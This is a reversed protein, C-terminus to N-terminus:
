AETETNIKGFRQIFGPSAVISGIVTMDYGILVAAPACALTALGFLVINSLGHYQDKDRFIVGIRVQDEESIGWLGWTWEDMFESTSAIGLLYVHSSEHLSLEKRRDIEKQSTALNESQTQKEAMAKQSLAPRIQSKHSEPRSLNATQSQQLSKASASISQSRINQVRTKNSRIDARKSPVNTASSTRGTASVIRIEQQQGIMEALRKVEPPSEASSGPGGPRDSSPPPVSNDTTQAKREIARNAFEQAKAAREAANASKMTGYAQIGAAGLMTPGFVWAAIATLNEAQSSDNAVQATAAATSRGLLSPFSSKLFTMISSSRSQAIMEMGATRGGGSPLGVSDQGPEGPGVSSHAEEKADALDEDLKQMHEEEQNTFISDEDPLEYCFQFETNVTEMHMAKETPNHRFYQRYDPDWIWNSNWHDNLGIIRPRKRAFRDGVHKWDSWAVTSDTDHLEGSETKAEVSYASM